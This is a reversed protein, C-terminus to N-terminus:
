YVNHKLTHVFLRECFLFNSRKETKIMYVSEVTVYVGNTYIARVIDTIYIYVDIYM